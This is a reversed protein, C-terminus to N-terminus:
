THVATGPHGDAVPYEITHTCVRTSFTVLYFNLVCIPRRSFRKLFPQLFALYHEDNRV